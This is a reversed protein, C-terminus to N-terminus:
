FILQAPDGPLGDVNVGLIPHYLVDSVQVFIGPFLEAVDGDALMRMVDRQYLTVTYRQLKRMLWRQPGENRLMGLLGDIAQQDGTDGRYLVIISATDEDDILKFKKSVTRLKLALAHDGHGQTSLDAKIGKEDLDCSGYLQHFYPQFLTLDLPDGAHGHWVLKSCDTGKRLLGPPPQIPPVFVHVQGMAQRGERNCRGAAQAISDLGALARYVVPFDIDVGAEILQTSVVRLPMDSGGDRKSALQQRLTKIVNSRHQGCMLSSLHVAGAPLRSWLEYASKKTSVIALVSDHGAIEGAISDWDRPTNLDAPLTVQARKLRAYLAAPDAIIETVHDFGAFGRTADFSNRSGLAPQTATCLVVTVGYHMTLLKLVDVIPQLFQAPLLQAEDLVIISNVLSHLKRCRSTKAAFLSEFLQVNTTVILPADWNECALRTQHDEHGPESEANSHHEIFSDASFIRGFVDATQEIISTYPIAYIIRRKGHVKAHDFAFALSSLTKGGGTPVTLSFIGPALTSAERCQALVESRARNIPTDSAGAALQDMHADFRTSLALLTPFAARRNAVETNMFAETDLFDADVLTSFLLRLWLHFGASGGPVMKLDPKFGDLSFLAPPAKELAEALERRADDGAMRAALDDWDYLGAHHSAILYAFVRGTHQHSFYNLAWLAGAASHTKDRPTTSSECHADSIERIYRQFGPRYKGLDHWRGALRAWQASAFPAAM